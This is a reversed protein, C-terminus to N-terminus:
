FVQRNLSICVHHKSFTHVMNANIYNITIGLVFVTFNRGLATLFRDQYNVAGTVNSDVPTFNMDATSSSTYFAFSM